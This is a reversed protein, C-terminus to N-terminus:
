SNIAGPGYTNKMTTLDSMPSRGLLSLNSVFFFFDMSFSVLRLMTINFSVQWHPYAGQITDQSEHTLDVVLWQCFTGLIGFGPTYGWVKFELSSWRAAPRKEDPSTLPRKCSPIDVTLGTLGMTLRTKAPTVTEFQSVTVPSHIPLVQDNNMGVNFPTPKLLACVNLTTHPFLPPLPKNNFLGKDSFIDILAGECVIIMGSSLSSASGAGNVDLFRWGRELATEKAREACEPDRERGAKRVLERDCLMDVLCRESERLSASSGSKM